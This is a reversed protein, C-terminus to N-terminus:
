RPSGALPNLRRLEERARESRRGHETGGATLVIQWAGLNDPERRLIDEAM